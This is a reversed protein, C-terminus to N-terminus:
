RRRGGKRERAIKAKEAKVEKAPIGFRAAMNKTFPDLGEEAASKGGYSGQEVKVKDQKKLDALTKSVAGSKIANILEGSRVKQGLVYNVATEFSCERGYQSFADIEAEYKRILPDNAFKEKDQIYNFQSQM